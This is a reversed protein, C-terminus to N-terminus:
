STTAWLSVLTGQTRTTLPGNKRCHLALGSLQRGRPEISTLIPNRQMPRQPVRLIYLEPDAQGKLLLYYWAHSELTNKTIVSVQIIPFM